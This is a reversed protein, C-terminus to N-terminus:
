LWIECCGVVPQPPPSFPFSLPLSSVEPSSSFVLKRPSPYLFSCPFSCLLDDAGVSCPLPCSSCVVSGGHWLGSGPWLGCTSCWHELSYTQGRICGRLLHFLFYWQMSKRWNGDFLGALHQMCDAHTLEAGVTLSCFCWWWKVWQGGGGNRFM